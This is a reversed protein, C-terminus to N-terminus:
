SGTLEQEIVEVPTQDEPSAMVLTGAPGTVYRVLVYDRGDVFRVGAARYTDLDDTGTEFELGALRGLEDPEPAILGISRRRVKATAALPVQQFPRGVVNLMAYKLTVTCAIKAFEGKVTVGKGPYWQVLPGINPYGTPASDTYFEIGRAGEPLPGNWAQVVPEGTGWRSARRWIEGSDQQLVAVEPTQTPSELRHFPGYDDSPQM